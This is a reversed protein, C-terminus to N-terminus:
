RYVDARHRLRAMESTPVLSIRVDVMVAEDLMISKRSETAIRPRDGRTAPMVVKVGFQVAEFSVAFKTVPEPYRLVRSIRHLERKVIIAHM